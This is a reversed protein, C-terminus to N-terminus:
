AAAKADPLTLLYRRALVEVASKSYGNVEHCPFGTRPMVTYFEIHRIGKYDDREIQMGKRQALEDISEVQKM